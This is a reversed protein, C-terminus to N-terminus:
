AGPIHGEKYSNEVDYDVELIKIAPNDLNNNVWETECLADQNFYQKTM